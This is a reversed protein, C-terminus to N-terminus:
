ENNGLKDDQQKRGGARSEGRLPHQEPFVEPVPSSSPFPTLKYAILSQLLSCSATSPQLLSHFAAISDCVVCWIGYVICWVDCVMCVQSLTANKVGAGGAEPRTSADDFLPKLSVGGLYEGGVGTPLPLGALEALTPYM